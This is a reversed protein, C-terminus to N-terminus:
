RYIRKCKRGNFACRNSHKFDTVVNTYERMQERTDKQVFKGDMIDIHFYDTHAVELGYIIKTASEKPVNLISTSIEVM